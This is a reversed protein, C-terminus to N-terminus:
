RAMLTKEEAKIEKEKNKCSYSKVRFNFVSLLVKKIRLHQISIVSENKFNYFSMYM